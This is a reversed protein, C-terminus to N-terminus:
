EHQVARIVPWCQELTGTYYQRAKRIRRPRVSDPDIGKAIYALRLLRAREEQSKHLNALSNIHMGCTMVPKPGCVTWGSAWTQGSHVVSGKKEMVLLSSSVSRRLFGKAEAVQKVHCGPHRKVFEWIEGQIFPKIKKSGKQSGM